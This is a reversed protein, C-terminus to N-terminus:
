ANCREGGCFHIVLEELVSACVQSVISSIQILFSFSVFKSILKLWKAVNTMLNEIKRLCIDMCMSKSNDM